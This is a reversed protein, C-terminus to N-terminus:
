KRSLSPWTALILMGANRSNLAPISMKLHALPNLSRTSPVAQRSFGARQPATHHAPQGHLKMLSHIRRDYVAAVTKKFNPLLLQRLNTSNAPRLYQAASPEPKEDPSRAWSKATVPIKHHSAPLAPGLKGCEM